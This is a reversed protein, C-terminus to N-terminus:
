LAVNKRKRRRAILGIVGVGSAFLSLAGPLPTTPDQTGGPPPDFARLDAFEFANSGTTLVVSQFTFAGDAIFTVLDHGLTQINIPGNTGSVTVSAGTADLGTYFTIHNYSDPSGWLLSLANEPASFNYTAKGGAQISTYQLTSWPGGAGGIGYGNDSLLQAATGSANEFPSRYVSPVQGTQFNVLSSESLVWSPNTSSTPLTSTTFDTTDQNAISVTIAKADPSFACLVFAGAVVAASCIFPKM